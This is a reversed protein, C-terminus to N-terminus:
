SFPTSTSTSYIEPWPALAIRKTIQIFYRTTILIKGEYLLLIGAKTDGGISIYIYIEQIDFIDSGEVKFLLTM